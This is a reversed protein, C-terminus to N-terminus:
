IELIGRTEYVSPGPKETDISSTAGFAMVLAQLGDIRGSSKTKDLKRNGAPDKTAKANAACWTLVPNNGHRLKANLLVAEFTDIAPSMSQFGQRHAQLPLLGPIKKAPDGMVATPEVDLLRAVEKVLHNMRWPDFALLRLDVDDRLELLRRAIFEYDVSAGPTTKIYGEKVWVDYPVRDNRARELLGVEPAWFELWAHWLGGGDQAILALASLDLRASLDLGGFVAGRRLVEFDPAGGCAAWAIRSVLPQTPDVRQNLNFNRYTAEASPMRRARQAKEQLSELRLFDGLAPNAQRMAEESFPDLKPDAAWLWVRTDDPENKQADDILVSLLDADTPAQTSIIVSLPEEHAGDATELADYLPSRPGIVQGLEDHIVFVPSKGHATSAEASLAKYVTGREPCVLEKASDRIIVVDRLEPSMRVMKAALAFSMAAQDRSQAGSYLQGNLRSEPGCLHLLLLMSAFATKGNKKAFSIIAYRLPTPADYIGRVIERQWERLVVRKGVDKGEPVRCYTEIWRINREGRTDSRSSRRSADGDAPSSRRGDGSAEPSVRRRSSRGVGKRRVGAM